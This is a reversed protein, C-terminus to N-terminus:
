LRVFECSLRDTDFLALTSEGSLYGCLEGPNVTITEASVISKEHTHGTVVLDYRGCGAVCDLIQRNHGHIVAIKLDDFELEKFESLETIESYAARLGDREGDNNGFIAEFRMELRGFEQATFPSILDGAHIVLDVSERNLLNVAKRVSDLNDHSDAVLGILCVM